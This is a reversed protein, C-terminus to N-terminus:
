KSGWMPLSDTRALKLARVRAKKIRVRAKQDGQIASKRMIDGSKRASTGVRRVEPVALAFEHLVRRGGHSSVEPFRMQVRQFRKKRKHEGNAFPIPKYAFEKVAKAMQWNFLIQKCHADLIM